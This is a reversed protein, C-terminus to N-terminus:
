CVIDHYLASEVPEFKLLLGRIRCWGKITLRPQFQYGINMPRGSMRQCKDQPEPLTFTQKFGERNPTIPYCVPNLVDECSNKQVCFKWVHWPHYCTDGDPRYEMTFIVEGLVKDIWLEASVLKKLLFEQGCTFAPFETIWTVRSEGNVNFDDRESNTIEYLQISSDIRSVVVAFCRELGGFDGSFVQLVDLGEYMGEWNPRKQENFNSIPIFDMPILAQHVVGQPKQIPLATQFMRNDFVCGSSMHLLSRDNFALIRQENASIPVNGWQNFFRTAFVLSRIGPELSQYFLDSNVPIMSRDSVPGNVLQVISQLPQANNTAGIWDSRSVPVQLSYIAERTGIYLRGQGLSVDLNATHKIARINGANSPVTFGDGGVVLPNETVNLVSDRFQYALTGSPGKVIDGASYQRGQAYWLRGMYYDMATAAPIENVGPTGPPVATNTIGKSRRLGNGDWFLPLTKGDGAQIVLFQEAQAFFSQPLAAPNSTAGSSVKVPQGASDPLVKYIDGALSLILYPNATDPEYLFGGQYLTSSNHITGLYRWGNRQTIGGDRCTANDLWFLENRALGNPNQSSQITTTKISNVGGSFDLSGDILTVAKSGTAM